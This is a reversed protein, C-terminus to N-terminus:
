AERAQITRAGVATSTPKAALEHAFAAGMMRPGPPPTVVVPGPPCGDVLPEPPPKPPLPPIVFSPPGGSPGTAQRWPVSQAANASEQLMPAHKFLMQTFDGAFSPPMHSSPIYQVSFSVHVIPVHMPVGFIHGPTSEHLTPMHSSGDFLQLLMGPLSPAIHVGTFLMHKELPKQALPWHMPVVGVFQVKKVSAHLVPVHSMVIPHTFVGLGFPLKQVVPINQVTM